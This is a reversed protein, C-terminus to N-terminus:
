PLPLDHLDRHATLFLPHPQFEPAVPHSIEDGQHTRIFEYDPEEPLDPRAVVNLEDTLGFWGADLAWHHHQCLCIGNRLDDKGDESKPYIHASEVIPKGDGPPKAGLGCIACKRDYLKRVGIRFAESRPSATKQVQTKEGAATLEPEDKLSNDQLREFEREVESEYDPSPDALDFKDSTSLSTYPGYKKTLAKLIIPIYSAGKNSTTENTVKSYSINIGYENFLSIIQRLRNRSISQVDKEKGYPKYYIKGDKVWANFKKKQETHWTHNRGRKDVFDLVEKSSIPYTVM